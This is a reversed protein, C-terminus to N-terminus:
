FFLKSSLYIDDTKFYYLKRLIELEMFVSFKLMKYNRIQVAFEGHESIDLGQLEEEESLRLGVVADTLKAIIYTICSAYIAVVVVALTQVQTICVVYTTKLTGSMYTVNDHEEFYVLVICTCRTLYPVGICHM